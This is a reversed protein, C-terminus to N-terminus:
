FFFELDLKINRAEIESITSWKLQSDSSIAAQYHGGNQDSHREVEAATTAITTTHKHDQTKVTIVELKLHQQKQQQQAQSLDDVYKDTHFHWGSPYMSAITWHEDSKKDDIESEINNTPESKGTIPTPEPGDTFDGQDQVQSEERIINHM